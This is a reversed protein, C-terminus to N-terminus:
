NTLTKQKRPSSREVGAKVIWFTDNVISHWKTILRLRKKISSKREIYSEDTNLADEVEQITPKSKLEQLNSRASSRYIYVLKELEDEMSSKIMQLEHLVFSVDRLINVQTDVDYTSMQNITSLLKTFDKSEELSLGCKTLDDVYNSYNKAM